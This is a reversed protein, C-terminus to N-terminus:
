EISIYFLFPLERFLLFSFCVLFSCVQNTGWLLVAAWFQSCHERDTTGNKSTFMSSCRFRNAAITLLYYINKSEISIWWKRINKCSWYSRIYNLKAWYKEIFEFQFLCGDGTSRQDLRSLSRSSRMFPAASLSSTHLSSFSRSSCLSIASRAPRSTQRGDQNGANVQHNISRKLSGGAQSASATADSGKRNLSHSRGYRVNAQKSGHSVPAASAAREKSLSSFLSYVTIM